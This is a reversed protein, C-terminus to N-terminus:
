ARICWLELVELAMEVDVVPIGELNNVVETTLRELEVEDPFEHGNKDYNMPCKLDRNFDKTDFFHTLYEFKACMNRVNYSVANECDVYFEKCRLITITANIKKQEVNYVFHSSLSQTTRYQNISSELVRGYIKNPIIFEFKSFRFERKLPQIMDLPSKATYIIVITTTYWCLLYIRKM